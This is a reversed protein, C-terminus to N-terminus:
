KKLITNLFFWIYENWPLIMLLLIIYQAAWVNFNYISKMNDLTFLFASVLIVISSSTFITVETKLVLCLHCDEPHPHYDLLVHQLLLSFPLLEAIWFHLNGELYNQIENDNFMIWSSIARIKAMIVMIPPAKRMTMIFTCVSRLNRKPNSKTDKGSWHTQHSLQGWGSWM